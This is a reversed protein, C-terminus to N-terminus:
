FRHYVGERIHLQLLGANDLFPTDLVQQAVDGEPRLLCSLVNGQRCFAAEALDFHRFALGLHRFPVSALCSGSLALWQVRDLSLPCTTELCRLRRQGSGGGLRKINIDLAPRHEHAECLVSVLVVPLVLRLDAGPLSVHLRGFCLSRVEYSCLKLEARRVFSRHCPPLVLLSRM